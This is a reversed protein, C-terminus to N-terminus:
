TCNPRYTRDVEWFLQVLIRTLAEYEVTKLLFYVKLYTHVGMYVLSGGVVNRIRIQKLSWIAKLVNYLYPRLPNKDAIVMSEDDEPVCVM